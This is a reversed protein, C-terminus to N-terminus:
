DSEKVGAKRLGEFLRDLVAQDKYPLRQRMAEFSIQSSLREIEAAEARAEEERGLEGYSAALYVHSPWFNPNLNLVRKLTEIAEAYRGM